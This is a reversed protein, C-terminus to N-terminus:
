PCKSSPGNYYPHEHVLIAWSFRTHMNSVKVRRWAPAPQNYEVLSIGHLWSVNDNHCAVAETGTVNGKKVIIFSSTM